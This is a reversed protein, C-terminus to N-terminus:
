EEDDYDLDFLYDGGEHFHEWAALYYNEAIDYTEDAEDELYLNDRLMYALGLDAGLFHQILELTCVPLDAITTAYRSFRRTM